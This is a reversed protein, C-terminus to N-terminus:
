HVDHPEKQKLKEDVAKDIESKKAADAADKAQKNQQSIQAQLRAYLGNRDTDERPLKDLGRGITLVDEQSLGSFSYTVQQAMAGTTLALFALTAVIRM